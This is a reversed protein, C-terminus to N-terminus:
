NGLKSRLLSLLAVDLLVLASSIRIEEWHDFKEYHQDNANRTGGSYEFLDRVNDFITAM